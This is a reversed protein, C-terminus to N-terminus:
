IFDYLSSHKKARLYASSLGAGLEYPTPPSQGPPQHSNEGAALVLRGDAEAVLFEGVPPRAYRGAYEALPPQAALPQAHRTM